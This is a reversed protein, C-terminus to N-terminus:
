LEVEAELDFEEEKDWEAYQNEAEVEIYPLANKDQKSEMEQLYRKMGIKEALALEEDTLSSLAGPSLIIEGGHNIDVQVRESWLDKQRMKLWTICATVDPPYHKEVPVKLVEGNKPDFIIKDEMVTYGVARSYLASAVDADAKQRGEELANKLNPYRILWYQFKTAPMGLNEAIATNTLGLLALNRVIIPHKSPDYVPELPRKVPKHRGILKRKREGM